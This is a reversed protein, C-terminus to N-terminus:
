EATYNTIFLVRGRTVKVILGFTVDIIRSRGITTINNMYDTTYLIHVSFGWIM